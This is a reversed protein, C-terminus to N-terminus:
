YEPKLSTLFNESLLGFFYQKGIEHSKNIESIVFDIDNTNALPRIVDIDIASIVEIIGKVNNKRRLNNALNIIVKRDQDDYDAKYASSQISNNKNTINWSLNSKLKGELSENVYESIYRLGINKYANVINLNKVITLVKIINEIYADWGPYSSQLNFMLRGHEPIRVSIKDNFFLGPVLQGVQINSNNQTTNLNIVGSNGPVYKFGSKTLEGFVLGSILEIPLNPDFRLDVFSQKLNDRYIKKPIQM